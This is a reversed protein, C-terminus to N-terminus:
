DVSAVVAVVQDVVIRHQMVVVLLMMLVFDQQPMEVLVVLKNVLHDIGVVIKKGVEVMGVPGHEAIRRDGVVFDVTGPVLVDVVEQIDAEVTDIELGAISGSSLVLALLELVLLLSLM